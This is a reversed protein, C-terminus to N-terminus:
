PHQSKQPSSTQGNTPKSFDSANIADSTIFYEGFDDDSPPDSLMGEDYFDIDTGDFAGSYDITTNEAGTVAHMHISSSGDDKDNVELWVGRANPRGCVDCLIEQGCMTCFEPFIKVSAPLRVTPDQGIDQTIGATEGVKNSLDNRYV